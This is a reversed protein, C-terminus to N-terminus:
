SRKVCAELRQEWDTWKGALDEVVKGIPLIAEHRNWGVAWPRSVDPEGEILIGIIYHDRRSYVPSGSNGRFTDTDAGIVPYGHWRVSYNEYMTGSATDRKRYSTRFEALRKTRDADTELEAEVLMQLEAFEIETAQFPFKVFGNDAVVRPGGEPHGVVYLPDDRRQRALSFCQRQWGAGASAGKANVGLKILAYDLKNPLANHEIAAMPYADMPLTANSLDQEYNFVVNLDNAYFGRLCHAATVVHDRGVLVGSCIVRDQNRIGVAIGGRSNDYISRYTLPKFRDDRGYFAKSKRVALLATYIRVLEKRRSEEAVPTAMYAAIVEHETMRAAQTQEAISGSNARAGAWMVSNATTFYSEAQRVLAGYRPSSKLKDVSKRLVAMHAPEFSVIEVSDATKPAVMFRGREGSYAAGVAEPNTVALRVTDQGQSVNLVRLMGLDALKADEIQRTNLRTAVGVSHATLKFNTDRPLFAERGELSALGSGLALPAAGNAAVAAGNKRMWELSAGDVRGYIGGDGCQGYGDRAIGRSTTGALLWGGASGRIFFPGGSDGNCTDKGLELRGAVIEGPGCGYYSADPESTGPGPVSGKCDPSAIPIDVKWKRGAPEKGPINTRGFGVGHGTTAADIEATSALRRPTLTMPKELFLLAQDGQSMEDNTFERGKCPIRPIGRRVNVRQRPATVDDGDIVYDKVGGCYCHAATLVVDPAILTGTCIGGEGLVALTDPFEGPTVPIGGWIKGSTVEWM